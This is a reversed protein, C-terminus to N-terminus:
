EISFNQPFGAPYGSQGPLSPLGEAKPPLLSGDFRIAGDPLRPPLFHLPAADQGSRLSATRGQTIQSRDLKEIDGPSVKVLHPQGFRTLDRLKFTALDGRTVEEKISSCSTFCALCIMLMASALFPHM